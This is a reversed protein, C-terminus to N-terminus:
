SRDSIRCAISTGDVWENFLLEGWHTPWGLRGRVLRGQAESTAIIRLDIDFYADASGAPFSGSLFIGTVDQQASFFSVTRELLAERALVLEDHTIM